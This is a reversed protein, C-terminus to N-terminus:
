SEQTFHGAQPCDLYTANLTEALPKMVDPGFVPDQSGCAVFAKGTFKTSWWERAKTSRARYAAGPRVVMNPFVRTAAQHKSSPFPAQYAISESPEIGTSRQIM